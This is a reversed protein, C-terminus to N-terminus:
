LFTIIKLKICDTKKKKNQKTKNKILIFCIYIDKKKNIIIKKKKIM